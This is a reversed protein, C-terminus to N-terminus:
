LAPPSTLCLGQAAARGPNRWHHTLTGAFYVSDGAQLHHVETGIHADMMGGLVYLFKEVGPPTEEPQTSKGPGLTLRLPMMRKAFVKSTLMEFAGGPGSVLRDGAARGKRHVAVLPTAAAVERYLDPLPVGLAKAIAIHSELTGTMRGTEIRSLTALAVGSLKSLEALTLKATTRLARIRIGLVNATTTM